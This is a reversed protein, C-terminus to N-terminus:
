TSLPHKLFHQNLADNISKEKAVKAIASVAAGDKWDIPTKTRAQKEKELKALADPKFTGTTWLEFSIAAERFRDEKAIHARFTPIRRLWDDVDEISVTGGPQRAKCEFGTVAAKNRVLLVDIDAFNGTKPDRATVGVDVSTGDNRVLYATMLEFIIGHLNGAPGQIDNLENLLRTIRQPNEVAIAAANRLMATLSLLAAAVRSGFLTSPTALIVGAARGATLAPGTFGEAVLMTLTQGSNPSTAKLLASKRLFYQISHEDFIGESFVDAAFFGNKKGNMLPSLYSPATLDFMFQGALRPGEEGRVVVKNYSGFGMKKVWERLGDLIIKEALQRAKFGDPDFSIVEPRKSKIVEGLDFATLREIVGAAILTDAVRDASVQKSLARPAGSIVPFESALILGGRYNLADIAAGYVSGTERLANRYNTWFQETTRQSKRYVFAERKPLLPVPFRLVDGRARSLQQRANVESLGHKTKLLGAIFSSRSPGHEKLIEEVFSAM